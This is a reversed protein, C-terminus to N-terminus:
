KKGAVILLCEPLGVLSPGQEHSQAQDGFEDVAILECGADLVSMVYQSITWHYEYSPVTGPAAGPTEEARDYVHPGLDFYNHSLELDKRTDDWVRRVPHYESVILRGRPRLVRTAEAYFRPLDSV